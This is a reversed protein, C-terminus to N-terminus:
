RAIRAVAPHTWEEEHSRRKPRSVLLARQSLSPSHARADFSAAAVAAGGARRFARRLETRSQFSEERTPRHTHAHAGLDAPFMLFLSLSVPSIRSLITLCSSHHIRLQSPTGTGSVKEISRFLCREYFATMTIPMMRMRLELTSIGELSLLSLSSRFSLARHALARRAADDSLCLIVSALNISAHSLSFSAAGHVLPFLFLGLGM